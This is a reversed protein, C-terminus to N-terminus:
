EKDEEWELIPVDIVNVSGVVRDNSLSDVIMKAIRTAELIDPAEVYFMPYALSTNRVLFLKLEKIM